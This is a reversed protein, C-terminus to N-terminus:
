YLAFANEIGVILVMLNDTKKHGLPRLRQDTSRSTRAVWIWNKNKNNPRHKEADKTITRQLRPIEAAKADHM